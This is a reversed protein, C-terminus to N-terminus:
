HRVTSALEREFLVLLWAFLPFVAGTTLAQVFVPAVALFRSNYVSAAFWGGLLAALIVGGLAAWAYRMSMGAIESSQWLTVSYTILFIVAWLGIPGFTAFDQVIGLVFVVVPPLLQPRHVAWFFIPILAFAPTVFLGNLGFPLLSLVMGVVVTAAPVLPWIIRGPSLAAAAM